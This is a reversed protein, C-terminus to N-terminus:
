MPRYFDVAQILTIHQVYIQHSQIQELGGRNRMNRSSYNNRQQVHQLVLIGYSTTFKHMFAASNHTLCTLHQLAHICSYEVLQMLQTATGFDSDAVIYVIMLIVTCKLTYSCTCFFCLILVLYICNVLIILIIYYEATRLFDKIHELGLSIKVHELM